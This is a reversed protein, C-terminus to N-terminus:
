ALIRCNKQVADVDTMIIIPHYKYKMYRVNLLLESAVNV